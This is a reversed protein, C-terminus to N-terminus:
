GDGRQLGLIYGLTKALELFTTDRGEQSFVWTASQYWHGQVSRVRVEIQSGRFVDRFILRTRFTHYPDTVVVISGYGREKVVELVHRAEDATSAAKDRTIIINEMPVGMAAINNRVLLIFRVGSDGITQETDTLIIINAVGKKYLNVAEGWRDRNGGSLLVIADSEDLPDSIILVGGVAWLCLYALIIIVPIAALGAFVTLCGRGARKKEPSPTYTNM